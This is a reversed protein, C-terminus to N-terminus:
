SASSQLPLEVFFTSGLGPESECWIRGNHREVLEKSIALGLGLGQKPSAQADPTRYFTEFIHALDERAIGKGRDRVWILAHESGQRVCLEVPSGEPSYKIANSLLNVIVQSLRDCDLYLKVPEPPLDLRILRETSLHQDEVVERCLDRLDCKRKRLEAKGTQRHGIDMFEDILLTLRSTQDNIRELSLQVGELESPLEKQRAFRRLALQAQGRITTIPTKLEHAAISLFRDKMQNADELKRNAAELEQAYSQMEQEAVLMTRRERERRASITAITIGSIIFPIFQLIDYSKFMGLQGVPQIFYCDLLLASLVVAFVSPGVGWCIAVFVVPLVLLSGPFRFEGLMEQFLLSAYLTAAIFPISIVYGVIPRRWRPVAVVYHKHLETRQILGM